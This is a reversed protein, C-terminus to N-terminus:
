YPRLYAGYICRSELRWGVLFSDSPDTCGGDSFNIGESLKGGVVCLMLAGTVGREQLLVGGLLFGM